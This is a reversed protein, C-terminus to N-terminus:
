EITFFLHIFSHSFVILPNLKTRYKKNELIFNTLRYLVVKKKKSKKEKELLM